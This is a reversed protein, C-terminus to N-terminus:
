LWARPDEATEAPADLLRVGIGGPGEVEGADAHATAPVPLLSAVAALCAALLLWRRPIARRLKVQARRGAAQPTM